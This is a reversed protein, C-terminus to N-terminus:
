ETRLAQMPDIAAARRAPLYSAMLATFFLIAAVLAIVSLNLAGVGYLTSRMARGVLLAGAFGVALGFLALMSAEKFVLWLVREKGAGLALRLGIERWRQAVSFAMVGYVGSACLLLAVAAFSTFLIATFRDNAVVMDRVQEMTRPVALAIQPDVRHVAAAVSSTMPDPDQATRVAIYASAWPLQWFPVLVEPNDRRLRNSRVTHYVGVIQWEVPPGLQTTGPILQEISIRQQLPDTGKLYRAALEENVMAVKVNSATDQDNISRGKVLHVGFTSFYDPTVMGFATDPRQSPDAFAPRGAIAFQMGWGPWQLPLGTSVAAHAVGPISNIEALIRQYYAWINAPQQSRTDPVPLYFTLIHDTRVGPDLRMLKVFSDIALGAGTLLALALAFEGAALIRRLRHRAGSTGARGGEKLAEGPDIRSAYWAPACGFLIGALTTAALTFLLVPVNLSLDAESPLTDPPLVAVIGRVVAVAVAVGLVGGCLSLGISETLLQGFIQARSGGLASRVAMERQRTIGRALLLNAVNVCAILLLFGVAGLLLWLMQIREPPIFDNKFPEIVAGWGTNTRPYAQALRATVADMDAQAQKRTVGPRLRAMVDLWHFAHNMQDPKFALPVTIQGQGRDTLGPALVGVVTYPEGNISVTSGIVNPDSGRQMWYKHTLIVVQDKGPQGEEPVFDRGLTFGYGLMRYLGPTNIRGEIYEPQERTAVNFNGDAWAQMDQFSTAQRKWDFFDGAAVVNRDGNIKSWVIVLQDPKDYPLPALLTAYDVTFIATTAGIGLALTLLVTATMVANKRIM